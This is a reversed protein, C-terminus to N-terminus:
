VAEEKEEVQFEEHVQTLFSPRSTVDSMDRVRLSFRPARSSLKSILSAEQRRTKKEVGKCCNKLSIKGFIFPNIASNLYVMINCFVVVESFYRFHKGEGFDHWLWLVHNPLLCIAFVVVATVFVKVVKINQEARKKVYRCWNHDRGSFLEQVRKVEGFLKRTVRVYNATIIMLPILYLLLFVSITFSKAYVEKPWKELCQEGELHLVSAYPAVAAMSVVWTATIMALATRVQIRPKLPTVIARHRETSLCLLTLVSTGMLLTQIPYVVHCMLSGLLFKGTLFETLDLPISLMSAGLDTLALNLIFFENPKRKKQLYIALCVLLNGLSGVVVVIVYLSLQIVQMVESGYDEVNGSDNTANLDM